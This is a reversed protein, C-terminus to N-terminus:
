RRFLHMSLCADRPVPVGSLPLFVCSGGSQCRRPSPQPITSAPSPPRTGVLAAYALTSGAAVLGVVAAVLLLFGRRRIMAMTRVAAEALTTAAPSLAAAATPDGPFLTAAKVVANLLRSPLEVLVATGALYASFLAAPLAPNRRGLRERLLERGRALRYSISGSPWGLRRAAEENTLGELYCLVLPARYHAPLRELEEDLLARLRRWAVEVLPDASRMPVAERETQRRRAAKARAKRAIRYAVGYLWNGLLDPKGLTPAKRMLVLFTAQFADEADQAHDLVPAPVREVGHGRPM